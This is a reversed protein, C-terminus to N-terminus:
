PFPLPHVVADCHEDPKQASLTQQLAAQLAPPQSAQESAVPAETFPVQAVRPAPVVPLGLQEGYRQLPPDAVHGDVQLESAFQTM